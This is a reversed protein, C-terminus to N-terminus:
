EAKNEAPRERCEWCVYDKPFTVPCNIKLCDEIGMEQGSRYRGVENRLADLKVYTQGNPVRLIKKRIKAANSQTDPTPRSRCEWCVRDKPFGPPCTVVVCDHVPAKQGATYRAVEARLAGLIVYTKGKPVVVVKGAALVATVATLGAIAVILLRKKM